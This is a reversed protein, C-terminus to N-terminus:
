TVNISAQILSLSVCLQTNMEGEPELTSTYGPALISRCAEQVSCQNLINKLLFAAALREAGSFQSQFNCNDGMPWFPAAYHFAAEQLLGKAYPM